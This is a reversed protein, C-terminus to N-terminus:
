HLKRASSKDKLDRIRFEEELWYLRRSIESQETEDTASHFARELIEVPNQAVIWDSLAKASAGELFTFSLVDGGVKLHNLIIKDNAIKSYSGLLGIIREAGAGAELAMLVYAIECGFMSAEVFKQPEAIVARLLCHFFGEILAVDEIDWNQPYGSWRLHSLDCDIDINRVLVGQAIIEFWRPLLYRLERVPPVSTLDAFTWINTRAVDRLPLKSLARWDDEAVGLLYGSWREPARAEFQHYIREICATLNKQEESM